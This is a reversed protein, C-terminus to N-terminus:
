PRPRDPILAHIAADSKGMGKWYSKLRSLVRQASRATSTYLKGLNKAEARLPLLRERIADIRTAAAEIADAADAAEAKPIRHHELMAISGALVHMAFARKAQKVRTVGAIGKPFALAFMPDHGPRGALNYLRDHQLAVAAHGDLLARHHEAELALVRNELEAREANLREGLALSAGLFRIADDADSGGRARAAAETLRLDRLIDDASASVRIVNGM